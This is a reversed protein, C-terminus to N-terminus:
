AVCPHLNEQDWTRYAQRDGLGQLNVDIDHSTYLMVGDRDTVFTFSNITIELHFLGAFSNQRAKTFCWSM